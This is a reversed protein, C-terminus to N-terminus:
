QPDEAIVADKTGVYVKDDLVTVAVADAVGEVKASAEGFLAAATAKDLLWGATGGDTCYVDTPHNAIVGHRCVIGGKAEAREAAELLPTKADGTLEAATPPAAVDAIEVPVPKGDVLLYVNGALAAALLAALTLKTPDM